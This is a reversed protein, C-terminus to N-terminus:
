GNASLRASSRGGPSEGQPCPTVSPCALADRYQRTDLAFLEAQGIRRSGYIRFPDDASRPPDAAVRLLRPLRRAQAGRLLRAARAPSRGRARRRLRGRSRPRGLDPHGRAGCADGEPGSGVPLAPVEAPVGRAVPCRRGEAGGHQGQARRGQLEGCAGRLHLRRALRGRRPGGRRALGRHATYYGHHWKQCSFFGIRVPEASDPPLATRFRGPRSSRDKTFFRYWYQEGPKLRPSSVVKEAAYDIKPSAFARGRVLVREFGRDAAVEYGIRGGRELGTLRTWLVAGNTTPAGSPSAM